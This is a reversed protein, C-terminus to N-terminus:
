AIAVLSSAQKMPKPRRQVTAFNCTGLPQVVTEITRDLLLTKARLRAGKLSKYVSTLSLQRPEHFNAGFLTDNIM